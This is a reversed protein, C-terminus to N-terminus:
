RKTKSVLVQSMTYPISNRMSTVKIYQNMAAELADKQGQKRFLAMNKEIEALIKDLAERKQENTLQKPKSAQSSKRGKLNRTRMYYDHRKAPDYQRKMDDHLFGKVFDEGETSM